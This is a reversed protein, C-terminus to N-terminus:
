HIDSFNTPVGVLTIPPSDPVGVMNRSISINQQDGQVRRPKPFNWLQSKKQVM